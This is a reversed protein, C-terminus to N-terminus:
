RQEGRGYEGKEVLLPASGLTASTEDGPGSDPRADRSLQPSGSGRGLRTGGVLQRVQALVLVDGEGPQEERPVEGVLVLGSQILPGDQELPEQGRGLAAPPVAADDFDEHQM